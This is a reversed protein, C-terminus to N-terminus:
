TAVISASCSSGDHVKLCLSVEYSIATFWRMSSPWAVGPDSNLKDQIILLATLARHRIAISM